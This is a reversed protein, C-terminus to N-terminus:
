FGRDDYDNNWHYIKYFNNGYKDKYIKLIVFEDPLDEVKEKLNIEKILKSEDIRNSVLLGCCFAIIMLICGVIIGM